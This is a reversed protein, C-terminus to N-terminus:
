NSYFFLPIDCLKQQPTGSLIPSLMNKPSLTFIKLPIFSQKFFIPYNKIQYSFKKVLSVSKKVQFLSKKLQFISKRV